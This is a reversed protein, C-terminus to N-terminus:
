QIAGLKEAEVEECAYARETDSTDTNCMASGQKHFREPSMQIERTWMRMEESIVSRLCLNLERRDRQINHIHPWTYESASMDAYINCAATKM